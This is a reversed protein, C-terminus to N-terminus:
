RKWNIANKNEKDWKPDPALIGINKGARNQKRHLKAELRLLRNHEKSNYHEESEKLLHPFMKRYENTAEVYAIVDPNTTKKGTKHAVGEITLM